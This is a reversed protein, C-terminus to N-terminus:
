SEDKEISVVGDGGQNIDDKHARHWARRRSSNALVPSQMGCECEARGERPKVSVNRGEVAGGQSWLAHGAIRTGKV